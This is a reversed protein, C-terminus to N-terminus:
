RYRVWLFPRRDDRIALVDCGKLFESCKALKNIAKLHKPFNTQAPYVADNVLVKDLAESVSICYLVGDYQASVNFVGERAHEAFLPYILKFYERWSKVEALYSRGDKEFKIDGKFGEAAGSSPVRDAKYGWARLQDRAAYEGRMGKRRSYLGGM